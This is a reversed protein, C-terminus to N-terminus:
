DYMWRSIAGLFDVWFLIILLDNIKCFLMGNFFQEFLFKQHLEEVGWGINSEFYKWKSEDHLFM